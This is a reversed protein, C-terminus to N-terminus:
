AVIGVYSSTVGHLACDTTFRNLRNRAIHKNESSILCVRAYFNMLGARALTPMIRLAAKCSHWRSFTLNSPAFVKTLKIFPPAPFM